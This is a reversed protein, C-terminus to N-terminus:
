IESSQIRGGVKDLLQGNTLAQLESLAQEDESDGMLSTILANRLDEDNGREPVDPM